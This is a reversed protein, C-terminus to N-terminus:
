YREDIYDNKNYNESAIVLLVSNNNFNNMQHWDEPELILCQTPNSLLFTFQDRGNDVFVECSGSICILAQRCEKHRHGGRNLMVNYIYYVRKIKFPLLNDIVSLNGSNDVFTPVQIIKAM